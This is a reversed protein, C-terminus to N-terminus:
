AFYMVKVTEPHVLIARAMAAFNREESNGSLQSGEGSCYCYLCVVVYAQSHVPTLFPVVFTYRNYDSYPWITVLDYIPLQSATVLSHIAKVQFALHSLVIYAQLV